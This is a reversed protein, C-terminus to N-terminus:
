PLIYCDLNPPLPQLTRHIYWVLAVPHSESLFVVCSLAASPVVVSVDVDGDIVSPEKPVFVQGSNYTSRWAIFSAEMSSWRSNSCSCLRWHSSTLATATVLSTAWWRPMATWIISMATNQTSQTQTSTVFQQERKTVECFRAVKGLFLTKAHKGLVCASSLLLGSNPRKRGQGTALM